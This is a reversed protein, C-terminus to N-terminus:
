KLRLSTEAYVAEVAEVSVAYGGCPHQGVHQGNSDAFITMDKFVVVYRLAPTSVSAYVYLHTTHRNKWVLQLCTELAVDSPWAWGGREYGIWISPGQLACAADIVARESRIGQILWQGDSTRQWVTARVVRSPQADCLVRATIAFTTCADPYVADRAPTPPGGEPRGGQLAGFGSTPQVIPTITPPIPTAIEGAQPARTVTPFPQPTWSPPLTPRGDGVTAHTPRPTSPVVTAWGSADMSPALGPTWSPPLTPRQPATATPPVATGTPAAPSTTCGALVVLAIVVLVLVGVRPGM